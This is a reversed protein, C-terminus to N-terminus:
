CLDGLARSYHIYLLDLLEYRSPDALANFLLDSDNFREAIPGCVLLRGAHIISLRDRARWACTL